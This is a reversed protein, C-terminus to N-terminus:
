RRSRAPRGRRRVPPSRRDPGLEVGGIKPAATSPSTSNPSTTNISTNTIRLRGRSSSVHGGACGNARGLLRRRGGDDILSTAFTNLAPCARTLDIREDVDVERDLGALEDRQDARRTAALRRQQPKIASRISGVLRRRRTLPLDTAAPGVRGPSRCPTGAPRDTRSAIPRSSCRAAARASPTPCPEAAACRACSMSSSTLSGPIRRVCATAITPHCAAACDRDGTGEGGCGGNSSISSGNPARSSIVRSCM